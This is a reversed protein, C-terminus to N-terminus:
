YHSMKKKLADNEKQKELRLAEKQEKIKKNEAELQENEKKLNKEKFSYGMGVKKSM